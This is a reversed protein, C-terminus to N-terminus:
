WHKRILDRPRSLKLVEVSESHKSAPRARSNCVFVPEAVCRSETSQKYWIFSFFQLPSNSFHMPIVFKTGYRAHHFTM